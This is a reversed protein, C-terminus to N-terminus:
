SNFSIEIYGLPYSTHSVTVKVNEKIEKSSVLQVNGDEYYHVQLMCFLSKVSEQLHNKVWDQYSMKYSKFVKM